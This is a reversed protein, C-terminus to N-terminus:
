MRVLNRIQLKQGHVCNSVADGVGVSLVRRVNRSRQGILERGGRGRIKINKAGGVVGREVRGNGRVPLSVVGVVRQGGRLDAGCAFDTAAGM